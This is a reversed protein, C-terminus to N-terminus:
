TPFSPPANVFCVELRAATFGGGMLEKDGSRM